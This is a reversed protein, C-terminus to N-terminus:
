PDIIIIPDSHAIARKAGVHANYKVVLFPANRATKEPSPHKKQIPENKIAGGEFAGDPVSWVADEDTTNILEFKDGTKLVSVSPYIFVFGDVEYLYARKTAM